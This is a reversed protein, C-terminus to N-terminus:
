DPLHQAVWKGIWPVSIPTGGLAKTILFLQMVAIVIVVGAVWWSNFGFIARFIGLLTFLIFFTVISQLAHFRVFPDKRELLYIMIGSLFWVLYATAAMLNQLSDESKIPISKETM